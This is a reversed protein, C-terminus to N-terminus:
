RIPEQITCGGADRLQDDPITEYSFGPLLSVMAQLVAELDIYEVDTMGLKARFRLVIEELAEISRPAM